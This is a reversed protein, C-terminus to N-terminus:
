VNELIVNVIKIVNIVLNKLNLNKMGVVKVEGHNRLIKVKVDKLIGEMVNGIMFELVIMKMLVNRKQKKKQYVIVTYKM